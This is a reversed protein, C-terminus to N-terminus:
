MKTVLHDRQNIFVATGGHRRVISESILLYIVFGDLLPSIRHMIALNHPYSVAVLLKNATYVITLRQLWIDLLRLTLM